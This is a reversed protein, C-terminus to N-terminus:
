ADCRVLGVPSVVGIGIDMGVDWGWGWVGPTTNRQGRIQPARGTGIRYGVQLGHQGGREAGFWRTASGAVQTDTRPDVVGVDLRADSHLSYEGDHPNTDGQTTSSVVRPSQTAQKGTMRLSRPVVVHGMMLNRAKVKNNSDVM